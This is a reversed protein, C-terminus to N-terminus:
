QQGGRILAKFFVPENQPSGRHEEVTYSRGDTTRLRDLRAPSSRAPFMAKFQQADIVAFLDDARVGRVWVRLTASTVGDNLTYPCDRGFRKLIARMQNGIFDVFNMDVSM